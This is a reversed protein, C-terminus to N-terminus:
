WDTRYIMAEHQMFEAIVREQELKEQEQALFQAFLGGMVPEFAPICIRARPHQELVCQAFRDHMPRAGKWVSGALM